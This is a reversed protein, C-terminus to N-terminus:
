KLRFEVIRIDGPPIVLPLEAAPTLPKNTMWETAAVYAFRPQLVVGAASLERRAPRYGPDAGTIGQNNMLTVVWGTANRNYMVKVQAGRVQVPVLEDAIMGIIEAFLGNTRSPDGNVRLWVPTAVIVSGQGVRRLTAVPWLRDEYKGAVFLPAAGALAVRHYDYTETSYAYFDSARLFGADQGMQGTDRLGALAWLEPTMQECLMFLLGGQEVFRKLTAALEPSVRPQGVLVLARYSRIISTPAETTLVDFIEGFPGAAYPTTEFPFLTNIVARMQEEAPTYPINGIAHTQSYHMAFGHNQDFLLAIPAYPTGRDRKTVLNEYLDQCMLAYPGPHRASKDRLALIRPDTRDVTRDDYDALMGTASDSEKIIFNAGAMYCTYLTRRQQQMPFGTYPGQLVERRFHREDPRFFGQFRTYGGPGGYEAAYMGWPIAYQRAAGRAVAIFPGDQGPNGYAIENGTIAAGQRAEYHNFSSCNFSYIPVGADQYQKFIRDWTLNWWHAAEDRNTPRPINFLTLDADLWKSTGGLGGWSWEGYDLALFRKGFAQKTKLVQNFYAEVEAPTRGAYHDSEMYHGYGFFMLPNTHSELLSKFVGPEELEGHGIRVIADKAWPLAQSFPKPGDPTQVTARFSGYYVTFHFTKGTALTPIRWAPPVVFTSEPFLPPLQGTPYVEASVLGLCSLLALLVCCASIAPGSRVQSPSSM